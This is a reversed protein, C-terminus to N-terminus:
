FVLPTKKRAERSRSFKEFGAEGRVKKRIRFRKNEAPGNGPKKIKGGTKM